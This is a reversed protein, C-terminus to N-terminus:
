TRLEAIGMMVANKLKAVTRPSIRAPSTELQSIDLDDSFFMAESGRYRDQASYSLGYQITSYSSYLNLIEPAADYSVVWPCSLRGVVESVQVHDDHQYFHEYLGAGKVYYPPDLYVFSPRKSAMVCAQVCKIADFRTLTIRSRHRAVKEIRAILDKKNFRADLKWLGTQNKGGIVGGNIIGSRNTRNLFFTSFALDLPDPDQAKQVDRQRAWVEITVETDRIKRCISDTDNLASSWFAFVSRNLDNIHIHSAYQEYLLSLAVSAGGAYVEFYDRGVLDNRLMLVKIFNAVKGKGGPYRLPSVFHNQVGESM